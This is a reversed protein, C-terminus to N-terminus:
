TLRDRTLENMKQMTKYKDKILVNEEWDVWDRPIKNTRWGDQIIELM